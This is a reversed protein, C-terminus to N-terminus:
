KGFELSVAAVDDFASQWDAYRQPFCEALRVAIEELSNNGTMSQLIFSRVKAAETLTPKYTASQKRLQGPSLPVGYLTSQKFSARPESNEGTIISTDWRWVYNNRVFDAKLSLTIRDGRAIEVPHELPFFAQGYILEPERPHNSFGIEDVLDSDFWIGFGHATGSRNVDFSINAEFDTSEITNYDVTYCRAPAALLQEPNIRAKRWTNIVVRKPASLNMDTRKWPAVIESYREAAEVVSAWVVDRKPILVGGPALLRNRADIISSLHGEYWPLVGRLDSIIIEAREPLTIKTSYNQFFEIKDACRNAAATERAIQIVDDPEIAYVRRAGLQCALLAFFGPGCGLDLVVAGPKVAAKIAEVYAHLRPTDALM